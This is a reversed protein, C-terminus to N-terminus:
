DTSADLQSSALTADPGTDAQDKQYRRNAASCATLASGLMFVSVAVLIASKLM